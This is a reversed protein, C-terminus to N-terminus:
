VEFANDIPKSTLLFKAKYLRDTDIYRNCTNSNSKLGLAGHAESFSAFPSGNILNGNEYIYVTQPIKPKNLRTYERVNNLHPTNSNVDFPPDKLLMKEYREFVDAIIGDVNQIPGTSYRKNLIESIDLFLRKGEPLLYYGQIKLLL